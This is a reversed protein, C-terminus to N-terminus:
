RFRVMVDMAWLDFDEDKHVRIEGACSIREFNHAFADNIRSVLEDLQPEWKGMIEDLQKNLSALKENLGTMKKRLRAIDHARKEFERMVNPNAAHILELNAAEADREMEVEDPTKGASLQTLLEEKGRNSELMDQVEQGHQRGAARAAEAEATADHVNQKELELRDMISSNRQKLGLVDSRAELLRIHAELVAHQTERIREVADKHRLVLRARQVTADDCEYRLDTLAQRADVMAKEYSAKQHEESEIFTLLTRGIGEFSQGIKEPM